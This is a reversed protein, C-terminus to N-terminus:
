SKNKENGELFEKEDQTVPIDISVMEAGAKAELEDNHMSQVMKLFEMRKEFKSQKAAEAKRLNKKKRWQRATQGKKIHKSVPM